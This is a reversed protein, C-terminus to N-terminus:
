KLTKILVKLYYEKIDADAYALDGDLYCYKKFTDTLPMDRYWRNCSMEDCICEYSCVFHFVRKAVTRWVRYLYETAFLKDRNKLCMFKRFVRGTPGDLSKNIEPILLFEMLSIGRIVLWLEYRSSQLELKSFSRYHEQNLLRHKYVKIEISGSAHHLLLQVYEQGVSGKYHVVPTEIVQYLRNCSLFHVNNLLMLPDPFRLRGDSIEMDVSLYEEDLDEDEDINEEESMSSYSM